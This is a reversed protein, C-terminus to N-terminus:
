FGKKNVCNKLSDSIKSYKFPFGNSMLKEPIVNQDALFLEEGMEGFLLKILFKPQSFISPMKLSRSLTSVFVENSVPNPSVFNIAGNMKPNNMCFIIGEIVDDIHIWSMKQSGDGFKGGLGLKFAPLMKKLAGGNGLVIGFRLCCVRSNLKLFNNAAQEWASCLRHSFGGYGESSEDVAKKSSGYFGIASASIVLKPYSSAKEFYQFLENTFGVRSEYIQKKVKTNWRRSDIRQGALNVICDITVSRDLESMDSILELDSTLLKQYKAPSRTLVIVKVGVQFLRDCLKSGIFGTGGTILVTKINM